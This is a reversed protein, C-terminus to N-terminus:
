RHDPLYLGTPTNLQAYQEWGEVLAFSTELLTAYQTLLRPVYKTIVNISQWAETDLDLEDPHIPDPNSNWYDLAAELESWDNVFQLASGASQDPQAKGLGSELRETM